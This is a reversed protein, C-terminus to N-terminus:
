GTFILTVGIVAIFAGLVERVSIKEKLVLATMPLIFLPTTSNLVTAISADIYKLSLIFLWFGGFIAIFVTFLLVKLLHKKLCPGLWPKLHRTTAGWFFIGLGGFFLRITTAQIASVSKVGIKALIIGLSIFLVSLLGYVIGSVRSKGEKEQPSREWLVWLVGGLTFLIGMWVLFSHTERLFILSLVVTFVPGVVGLLVILRPGLLMLAKFYLTDGLAIGLLGSLGLFLFTKASVPEGGIVLLVIGLYVIGIISKGLTMGPPSIENGLKSFLITTYAWAAASLLAAGGGLLSYIIPSHIM